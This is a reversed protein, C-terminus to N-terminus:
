EDSGNETAKVRPLVNSNEIATPDANQSLQLAKIYAVIAWRDNTPIQSAYGSMTRVGNTVTNFLQGVTQQRIADEHLNKPAVWSTGNVGTELLQSARKHILGDGFGGAGHCPSCYINFREQGREVFQRDVEVIAPYSDAWANQDVGMFFHTDNVMEGQAITGEVRPRMARGDVFL